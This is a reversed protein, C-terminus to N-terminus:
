SVKKRRTANHADLFRRIKFLTRETPQRNGHLLRHMHSSDRLGCARSLAGYTLDLELRIQKLDLLEDLM